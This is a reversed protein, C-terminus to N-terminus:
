ITEKDFMDKIKTPVKPEFSSKKGVYTETTVYTTNPNIHVRRGTDWLAFSLRTSLELLDEHNGVEKIVDKLANVRIIAGPFYGVQVPYPNSSKKNRIPYVHGNLTQLGEAGKMQSQDSWEKGVSYGYVRDGWYNIGTASSMMALKRYYPNKKFLGMMSDFYGSNVLCDSELYCVFDNGSMPLEGWWKDSLILESDKINRLEKSINEMTLEIVTPEDCNKLIVTLM